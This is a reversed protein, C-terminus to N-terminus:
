KSKSNEHKESWKKFKTLNVGLITKIVTIACVPDVEVYNRSLTYEFPIRVIFKKHYVRDCYDCRAKNKEKMKKESRGM